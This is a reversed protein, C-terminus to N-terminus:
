SANVAAKRRKDYNVECMSKFSTKYGGKTQVIGVQMDCCKRNAHRRYYPSECVSCQAVKAPKLSRIKVLAEDISYGYKIRLDCAYNAADAQVEEIRARFSEVTEKADEFLADVNSPTAIKEERVVYPPLRPQDGDNADEQDTYIGREHEVRKKLERVHKEHSQVPYEEEKEERASPALLYNGLVYSLPYKVLFDKKRTTPEKFLSERPNVEMEDVYKAIFADVLTKRQEITVNKPKTAESYFLDNLAQQTAQIKNM